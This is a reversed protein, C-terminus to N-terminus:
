PVDSSWVQITGQPGQALVHRGDRSLHLPVFAPRLTLLLTGAEVNWVKLTGDNCTFLRQGDASFEVDDGYATFIADPAFEKFTLRRQGTSLDWLHMQMKRDAWHVSLLQEGNPTFRLTSCGPLDAALTRVQGGSKLEWLRIGDKDSGVVLHDGRPSVEIRWGYFNKPEDSFMVEGTNMKWATIATTRWDFTDDRPVKDNTVAVLIQEDQSLRLESDAGALHKGRWKERGSEQDTIVVERQGHDYTAALKGDATLVPHINFDTNMDKAYQRIKTERALTFPATSVDFTRITLEDGDFTTILQGDSTFQLESVYKEPEPLKGLLEGDRGNYIRL